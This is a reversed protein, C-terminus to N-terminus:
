IQFKKSTTKNKSVTVTKNNKKFSQNTSYQIQYGTTQTSQKKWKVTFGKEESTLKSITTSKPKITFKKKITGSYKGKLNVTVTYIGVQKRGKSFNVTYDTSKKLTKGNSNKVTVKPTKTEGNYTYSTKLLTVKVSEATVTLNASLITTMLLIVSLFVSLSRKM